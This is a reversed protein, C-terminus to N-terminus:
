RGGKPGTGRAPRAEPAPAGAGQGPVGPISYPDAPDPTSTARGPAPQAQQGQPAQQAAQGEGAAQQPASTRYSPSDPARDDPDAGYGQAPESLAGGGQQGQGNQPEPDAPEPAQEAFEAAATTQRDRIAAFITALVVHDRPLWQDAPRGLRRELQEQTVGLRGFINLAEARARNLDKFKAEAAKTAADMAANILWAPLANTVVNRQAKSQGIQFAIDLQREADFKGHSEAKRQRYLRTLTFGTEHDVFTASLVWERPTEDAIEVDVFCNGWLRVAMMAGHISLGKIQSKGTPSNKDNQEWSYFCDTGLEAAEFLVLDKVNKPDRKVAVQIATFHGGGTQAKTLSQGPRASMNGGSFDMASDRPRALAGPKGDQMAMISGDKRPGPSQEPAM